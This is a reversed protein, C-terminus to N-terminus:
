MWANQLCLDLTKCQLRTCAARGGAAMRMCYSCSCGRAPAAADPAAEVLLLLNAAVAFPRPKWSNTADHAVACLVVSQGLFVHVFAGMGGQKSGFSLTKSGSGIYEGTCADGHFM